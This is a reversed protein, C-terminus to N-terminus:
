HQHFSAWDVTFLDIQTLGRADTRQSLPKIYKLGAGNFLYLRVFLSEALPTEALLACPRGHRLGLVVSYPLDAQALTKKIVTTGDQYILSHPIGHGYMPSNIRCTMTKLDITVIDQFVITGDSQSSPTLLESIRPYGGAITWLLSQYAPTGTRPIQARLAPSANIEEVRKFDWRGTYSFLINKEMMEHFVLICSSPPPTRGHTLATLEDITGPDFGDATLLSRAEERSLPTIRKILSVSSSLPRGTSVLYETADNGSTNLMRLIGLARTEDTSLFVNAIWYAQRANITAGDFTVPRDAISKVFHGPPWWSNVVTGPPTLTRLDTMAADWVTNYIKTVAFPATSNGSIVLAVFVPLSLAAVMLPKVGPRRAAQQRLIPVSSIVLDTLAQFGVPILLTLPVSLLLTFRQARVSLVAAPVLVTLIIILARTRQPDRNRWLQVAWAGLSVTALSGILIGIQQDFVLADSRKLEGVSLYLDPWLPLRPTMFDQLAVWGELFLTFFENLGYTLSIGILSGTIYVLLAASPLNRAPDRILWGYIVLGVLSAAITVALFMWGQWFLAYGTICVALGIGALGCRKLGMPRSVLHFLIAMAALPFLVNYPDNDYWGFMSRKLIIPTTVLATSGLLTPWWSARLLRSSYIFVILSALIVIVPTWSVSVVLDAGPAAFSLIRHILAGIYPHLTFPEWHGNPFLMKKNLYKSGRRTEAIHGTALVNKTLDYFLFPDSEMLYPIRQDPPNKQDLERAVKLITRRAAADEMALTRNTQEIALRHAQERPIDPAEATIASEFRNIIRGIVAQTAQEHAQDSVFTRVPYLRLFCAIGGAILFILLGSLRNLTSTSVITM